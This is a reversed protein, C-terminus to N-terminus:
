EGSTPETMSQTTPTKAKSRAAPQKSSPKAPATAKAGAKEKNTAPKSSAAKESCELLAIAYADAESRVWSPRVAFIWLAAAGVNVLFAAVVMPPVEAQSLHLHAAYAGDAGAAALALTLGIWRLGLLNRAFGYSANKAAVLDGPKPHRTQRRLWDGASEYHIDAAAPDAAEDEPTPRIIGAARLTEFYRAKTPEVITKDRHRLLRTTPKGGWASWLKPELAKGLNRSVQALFPPLGAVLIAGGTAGKASELEPVSV